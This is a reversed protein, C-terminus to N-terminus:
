GRTEESWFSSIVREVARSVSVRWFRRVEKLAAAADEEVVEPAGEVGARVRTGGDKMLGATLLEGRVLGKSAESSCVLFIMLVAKLPM